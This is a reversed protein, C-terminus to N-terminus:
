GFVIGIVIGAILGLGLPLMGFLLAAYHIAQPGYTSLASQIQGMSIVGFYLGAAVVVLGIIAIKLAKKLLIGIVLGIIFPVALFVYSPLGAFSVNPLQNSLIKLLQDWVNITITMEKM